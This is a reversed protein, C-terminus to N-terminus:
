LMAIHEILRLAFDSGAKILSSYSIDVSFFPSCM